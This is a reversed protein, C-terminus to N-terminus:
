CSCMADDICLDYNAVAPVFSEGCSDHVCVAFLINLIMILRNWGTKMALTTYSDQLSSHWPEKNM